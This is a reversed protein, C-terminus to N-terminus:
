TTSSRFRPIGKSSQVVALKQINVNIIELVGLCGFLDVFLMMIRRVGNVAIVFRRPSVPFSIFLAPFLGAFFFALVSANVPTAAL